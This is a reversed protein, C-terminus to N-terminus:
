RSIRIDQLRSLVTSLEISHRSNRKGLERRVVAFCVAPDRNIAPDVVEGGEEIYIM